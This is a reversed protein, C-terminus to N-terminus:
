AGGGLGSELLISWLAHCVVDVHDLPIEIHVTTAAMGGRDPRLVHLVVRDAPADKKLSGAATRIELGGCDVLNGYNGPGATMSKGDALHPWTITKKIM